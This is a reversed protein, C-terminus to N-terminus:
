RAKYLITLQEYTRREEPLDKQFFEIHDSNLYFQEEGKNEDKKNYIVKYQSYPDNSSDPIQPNNETPKPKQLQASTPLSPPPTLPLAPAPAGKQYQQQLFPRNFTDAARM